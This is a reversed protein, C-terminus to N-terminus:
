RFGRNDRVAKISAYGPREGISILNGGSNMAGRQSVYVDINEANELVKEVEFSAISNGQTMPEAEQALNLGGATEIARAPMTGASVTRIEAETSEFFITQKDTANKTV